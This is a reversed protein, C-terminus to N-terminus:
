EGGGQALFASAAAALLAPATRLIEEDVTFGPSHLPQGTGSGLFFFLSPLRRAFHSFDEGVTLPEAELVNDRGLIRAFVPRAMEVLRPDNMVAPNVKEFELSAEVGFAPELGRLIGQIGALIRDEESASFTRVTGEMDVAEAIVNSRVGGSIKGITLVAKEGPDRSRSILTQLQGIASAAAVIADIGQHPFAGHAARGQVHIYIWAVNAMIAGPRLAVQGAALGPMVHLGLMADLRPNELIGAEILREAGGKEKKAAGEECPQLIFVITGALRERVEALMRAAVLLNTMHVDHGCAHM